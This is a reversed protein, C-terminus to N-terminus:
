FTVDSLESQYKMITNAIDQLCDDQTGEAKLFKLLNSLTVKIIGQTYAKPNESGAIGRMKSFADGLRVIAEVKKDSKMSKDERIEKISDYMYSVFDSYLHEKDKISASYHLQAKEEEWSVDSNSKYEKVTRTAIDLMTAIEEVSKGSVFLALAINTRRERKM